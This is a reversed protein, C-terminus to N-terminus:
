VPMRTRHTTLLYALRQDANLTAPWALPVVTRRSNDSSDDGQHTQVYIATHQRTSSMRVHLNLPHVFSVFWQAGPGNKTMVDRMGLQLLKHRVSKRRVVLLRELNSWEGSVLETHNSRSHKWGLNQLGEVKNTIWDDVDGYKQLVKATGHVLVLVHYFALEVCTTYPRATQPSAPVLLRDTFRPLRMSVPSWGRLWGHVCLLLVTTRPFFESQPQEDRCRRILSRLRKAGPTTHPHGTAESVLGIWTDRSPLTNVSAELVTGADRTYFLAKALRAHPQVDDIPGFLFFNLVLDRAREIHEWLLYEM